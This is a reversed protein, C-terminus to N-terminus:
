LIRLFLQELKLFMSHQQDYAVDRKKPALYSCRSLADSRGQQSSPCYTIIFNFHFLSINWRAQHQNLIQVFM